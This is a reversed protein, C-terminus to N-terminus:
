ISTEVRLVHAATRFCGFAVLRDAVGLAQRAGAYGEEMADYFFCKGKLDASGVCREMYVRDAGRPQGVGAVHWQDIVTGMNELVKNVDKDMLMGLFAHTSGSCTESRLTEALARAAHPNHAVDIIIRPNHALTQFRGPLTAGPVGRRIPETGDLVDLLTLAAIAVAVNDRQHAGELKPAPIDAIKLQGCCWCVFQGDSVLSFDQNLRHLPTKLKAAHNIVSAPPDSDGCVAPRGERLIGAKEFGVSERDTGLWDGHDLDISTLVSVDADFLNVTDLRGGLGVELLVVDLSAQQFLSMAALTGFEFYTLSTTGRGEDVAAFASILDEDSVSDGAIRIRENYRLLHPSTYTGVRQGAALLISEMFAVCSGKGNTGAVSVLKFQFSRLGMRDAVLGCRELGLDISAPHLQQQWGLWDSLTDFRM